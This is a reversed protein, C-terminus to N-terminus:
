VITQRMSLRHSDFERSFAYNGSDSSTREDHSAPVRVRAFRCSQLEGFLRAKDNATSSDGDDDELGTDIGALYQEKNDIRLRVPKASAVFAGSCLPRRM